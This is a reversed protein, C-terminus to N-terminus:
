SQEQKRHIRKQQRRRGGRLYEDEDEHMQKSILMKWVTCASKRAAAMEAKKPDM